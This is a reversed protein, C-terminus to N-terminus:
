AADHPQMRVIGLHVADVDRQAASRGLRALPVSWDGPAAQRLMTVSPYWRSRGEGSGWRWDPAHPLLLVTPAGLVGALHAVMTDVTVVLRAGAILRATRAVDADDDGPNRFWPATAEAAAAGRQLSVFPALPALAALLGPLPVSRAPDWDGSRWCLAVGAAGAGAAPIGFAGVPVAGADPPLRLVHALEMIEVDLEAPPAPRTPDFPLLLDIGPLRALLPLLPPQAEVTVRRARRRLPRLYRCFALTDGLGHYCRVLVDRGDVPRGDWVWRLHYPLGPDDRTRRDRRALVADAVRWAAAFDGRRMAEAWGDQVAAAQVSNESDQM